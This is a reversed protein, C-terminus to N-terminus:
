LTYDGCSVVDAPDDAIPAPVITVVFSDEDTCNNPATGITAYIYVTQTSTIEDGEALANGSGVTGSFYSGSELAPLVYVNCATVDEMETVVPSPNITVTFESEDTCDPTVTSSAYVYITQTAEIVTGAAIVNGTGDPGGTASYYANDASLAPLTYSECAEVDVPEDAVPGPNVTITVSEQATCGRNNVTITYVGSETVTISTTTDPLTTTGQAWTVTVDPSAPDFNTPTVTITASNGECIIEDDSIEFEPTLDQVILDFSKAIVCGTVNNFIRVWVTQEFQTVNQYTLPLAGVNDLADQETLHYSIAYDAPANTGIVVPTNVSLDFTGFGDADCFTLDGPEGTIEDLPDYFEVIISDTGSCTSALFQAVISYEGEETVVLDPGTAGEIIDDGLFWQFSYDDPDLGSELLIESGPCLANNGAQTLDVGLDIDGIDFPGIFVASDYSQDNRDAIVLKIHYTQGIVVDSEALMSITHGEFNIPAAMPDAGLGDDGYYTGFYDENASACTNFGNYADDRITVVSVPVSTNPVVALNTTVGAENTLFFAFADSYSCQFTGYEESAFIFPFSMHDTLPVFDFELVTANNYSTLGPDIGLGQIYNFLQTDGTWTFGGESLNSNNPGPANMANGTSLVIGKSMPFNSLGQEFYAIGNTSNFGNTNGTRWTVNSVSACTSTVLVDSVLQPVTYTTNNTIISAPTTICVDFSSTQNPTSTYSYVRIKYTQGPTLGAATSMNADNCSIQTLSGCQNGQYLVHFLDTTSGTINNLQIIHTGATAVFEFWVDDDDTGFCTNGEPSATAGILTGSATQLCDIGPNVPVVTADACNDNEIATTFKRPGSITSLGDETGCNARIYYDYSTASTLPEWLYPSEETVITGPTTPIPSGTPVVWIEWEEADGAEVWNLLVSTETINTVTLSQPKPCTPAVCSAIATYLISNQSGTGPAMYFLDEGFFDVIRVGVETAFSGGPNWFLEFPIGDCLPVTVTVPGSGTTFTSGITAVTVGGQRVSMTNGNWGDGFSDTMIFSYNCQNAPACVKTTFSFPGAWTSSSTSTCVVRVYFQYNTAPLLPSVTVGNTLTNVGPTAATPAPQGAPVVYYDWNGTAPGAWGLLASTDTINTATLNGPPLCAPVLCDVLGTYLSSNQTGTGPAKTYLTQGFSNVISVGVETAFSGGANWFLEFPIGNCLPVTVTVPGAGGTFTSGITAVTIGNQRVTMTNGNWGDGFSDTMVFSYNCQQAPQCITTNFLYPGAWASFTGNGCDARVYYQYATAAALPTGDVTATAVYNTNTTATTGA